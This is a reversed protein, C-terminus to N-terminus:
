RGRSPPWLRACAGTTGGGTGHDSGSALAVRLESRYSSVMLQTLGELFTEHALRDITIKGADIVSVRDCLEFLHAFNHDIIIMSVSRESALRQVLDIILRSERAGM